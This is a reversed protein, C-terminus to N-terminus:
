RREALCTQREDGVRIMAFFYELADSTQKLPRPAGPHRDEVHLMVASRTVDQRLSCYAPRMM